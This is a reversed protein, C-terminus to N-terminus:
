DLTERLAKALARSSFPKQLFNVGEDLVGRHAIVDATYGSMVLCRLGPLTELLVRYLDRGNMGPMVVDTLLVDITGEYGAALALAEDPSGAALVRYGLRALIREALRLLAAEDEVLLVTESGGVPVDSAGTEVPVPVDITAESARPLYIRFTSGEGPESYVNIFGDNQRVIGYVTALGLGSGKEPAKTSFFPEFVNAVTERDMGSGTDSVVLQVYEGPVFGVHDACYAEDFVDTGTEVTIEGVDGIADRANVLLNTLVQDLQAPDLSVPWLDTGPDWTLRVNAGILRRLMPLRSAIAENLDLVRPTIIQKRAFTLLQRILAASHQAAERVQELDDRVTHRLDPLELAMDVHGTIVTLMNNFDHALGGALRGIAEMKRAQFLQSELDLERTIDRQVAVYNVIAGTRDRVPSVSVDVTFTSGDKRRNVLRGNWTEGATLSRWMADYFGADQEGSKLMRPNEGLVEDRTYGTVAEFAPNVYQIDGGTDTILIAERAQEIARLLRDREAAQRRRETVDQCSGFLRTVKGDRDTEARGRILVHRAGGGEGARALDLELEYPAGETVAAAVAAELRAMDEPPFLAPHEVFRPAVARDPDLGFIRFMERSWEVTDTAVDWEWSGVHAVEEARALMAESKRLAEEVRRRETIDELAAMIGVVTGAEGMIPATSLSVPVSSGDKRRRTLEMGTFSEGAAVRRRLKVFEADREPPVIPLMHGVAEAATWGFIDTASDNWTLVRGDLDLSVLALPAAGVLARLRSEARWLDGQARRVASVDRVTCVTLPPGDGQRVPRTHIEVELRTGDKTVHRGAMGEVARGVVTTGAQGAEGVDSLDDLTMGRFQEPPYGYRAVAVDNVEVIRGYSGLVFVADPSLDFLSRYWSRDREVQAQGRGALVYVFGATVGIYVLGKITQALVSERGSLVWDVAQDSLVIWVAGVVAYALAIRWPSLRSLM